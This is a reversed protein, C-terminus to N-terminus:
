RLEVSKHVHHTITSRSEASPHGPARTQAQGIGLMEIHDTGRFYLGVVCVSIHLIFGYIQLLM